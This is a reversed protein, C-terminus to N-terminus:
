SRASSDPLKRSLIEFDKQASLQEHQRLAGAHQILAKDNGNRDDGGGSPTRSEQWEPQRLVPGRVMLLMSNM